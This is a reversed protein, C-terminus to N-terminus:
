DAILGPALGLIRPPITDGRERAYGWLKSPPRGMIQRFVNTLHSHSSYGLDLALATLDREGDALRYLAESIRLRQLYQRMTMGVESSFTRCVYSRSIGLEAAIEALSVGEPAHRVLLERARRALESIKLCPSAGGGRRSRGVAFAFIRRACERALSAAFDDASAAAGTAAILVHLAYALDPSGSLLPAGFPAEPEVQLRLDESLAAVARPGLAVTTVCTPRGTPRLAYEPGRNMLMVQSPDVLVRRSDYRLDLWGRRILAFMPSQVPFPAPSGTLEGDFHHDVIRVDALVLRERIRRTAGPMSLAHM